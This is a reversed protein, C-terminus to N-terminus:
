TTNRRPSWTGAAYDRLALVLVASLTTGESVARARAARQLDRPLGRVLYIGTRATRALVRALMHPAHVHVHLGSTGNM